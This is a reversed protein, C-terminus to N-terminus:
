CSGPKPYLRHCKDLWVVFFTDGLLVGHVRGLCGPAVSIAFQWNEGDAFEEPDIGPFNGESTAPFYIQHRHEVNNHEDRFREVTWTSYERMRGVLDIFFQEDCQSVPFKLSNADLYKFSFRIHNGGAREYVWVPRPKNKGM